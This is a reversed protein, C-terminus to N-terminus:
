KVIIKLTQKQNKQLDTVTLLYIGPKQNSINILNESEDLKGQLLLKGNLDILQFKSKRGVQVNIIDTAPNPYVKIINEIEDVEKLESSERQAIRLLESQSNLITDPTMENMILGFLKKIDQKIPKLRISSTDANISKVLEKGNGKLIQEDVSFYQSWCNLGYILNDKIKFASIYYSTDNVKHNFYYFDRFKCVKGYFITDGTKSNILLNDNKNSTIKLFITDEFNKILLLEGFIKSLQKNNKPFPADFTSKPNEIVPAEEAPAEVQKCSFAIILILISLTTKVIKM